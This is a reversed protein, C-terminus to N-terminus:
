TLAVNYTQLYQDTLIKSLPKTHRHRTPIAQLMAMSIEKSTSPCQGAEGVKYTGAGLSM